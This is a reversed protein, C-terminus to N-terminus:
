GSESVPTDEQKSATTSASETRERRAAQKTAQDELERIRRRLMENERNMMETETKYFTVEDRGGMM